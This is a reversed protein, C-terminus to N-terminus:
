IEVFSLDRPDDLAEFIDQVIKPDFQSSDEFTAIESVPEDKLMSYAKTQLDYILRKLIKKLTLDIIKNYIVIACANSM